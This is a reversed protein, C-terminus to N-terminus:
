QNVVIWVFISACTLIVTHESTFTHRCECRSAADWCGDRQRWLIRVSQLIHSFSPFSTHADCSFWGSARQWFVTNNCQLFLRQPLWIVNFSCVLTYSVLCVSFMFGKATASFVNMCSHAEFRQPRVLWHTEYNNHHKFIFLFQILFCFRVEVALSHHGWRRTRWDVGVKQDHPLKEEM